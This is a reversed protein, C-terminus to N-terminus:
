ETRLSKVPNGVATKITQVSLTIIAVFLMALGSIAFIWWNMVTRYAFDQLWKYMVWWALPAAIAFALLVLRVFDKSLISVINAVSAGLIKRIGIEKTRTNTTYIVLGLLGLCSILVAFVTAWALLSATHQEATYFKEIMEDVFKYSFDEEPYMKQYSSQIQAITNKWLVGHPTNPNLKIHFTNGNGSAFVVASIQAHMSQDHFDKLIGVVPLNKGNFRLLKGVADPAHQFGIAHAYTENILFEKMTDSREVNRGALLHLQYVDIYEPTGWRIQVNMEPKIEKIGNYYSINTFAVGQDAPSLFGTGAVAVGPIAKIEKLLQPAHTSVTDRPLEFTLIAEKNFGMNANLSYNIQKSVILTAIVFFQAIVFQSVTLSKRLWANRTQSTDSFSQSKLVSVPKYGSLILAPYLGAFFSIIIILLFLFVFLSPQQLLDFHLGPPTFNKFMNLLLPTLVVSFVTAISTVLFTEGLFQFVLQAKSSGMTKRIGIEKARRSAQATTLNIFNICGLLLLFAGIALLGYLTKRNAIRQDFGQYTSNFHMDSLPQLHFSMMNNADRTANKDYKNLIANLQAEENTVATNGALKVYLKSYAMWDNWVNMMFQDQLNTKAITPFSIFEKGNFDTHENLDKVVGSVSVILNDNYNIKKGVVDNLAIGPFYQAARSETLVVSFPDKLASRQSGTIWKFPLLQFYQANTFIIEAQKKYVVANANDRAISVKVTGDGQFSMVPVTEEIGTMENAVASSLPAQVGTSHGETGDFKADIVVRYIRANDKQFKDFSFEYYVILFIVLSASIGIALGFINILSFTKNRWLNRFATTFYNKLM